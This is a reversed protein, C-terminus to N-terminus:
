FSNLKEEESDFSCSIKCGPLQLVKQKILGMKGIEIINGVMSLLGVSFSEYNRM